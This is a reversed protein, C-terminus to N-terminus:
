PKKETHPPKPEPYKERLRVSAFDCADSWGPTSKPPRDDTMKGCLEADRVVAFCAMAKVLHPVGSDPDIDEGEWWRWMHRMAADFYTSARVGSVRWNHRGYKLAGELLALGLEYLVPGPIAQLPAKKDAFAAKPNTEKTLPSEAPEVQVPTADAHFGWYERARLALEESAFLQRREVPGFDGTWTVWADHWNASTVRLAWRKVPPPKVDVPPLRSDVGALKWGEVFRRDRIHDVLPTGGRLMLTDGNIHIITYEREMADVLVHGVELPTQSTVTLPYRLSM